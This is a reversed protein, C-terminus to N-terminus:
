NKMIRTYYDLLKYYYDEQNKIAGVMEQAVRQIFYHNHDTNTITTTPHKKGDM